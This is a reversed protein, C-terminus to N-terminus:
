IKLRAPDRRNDWIRIIEVLSASANVRYILLWHRHVLKQLGPRKRMPAGRNPLRDLTFIAEVIELGIREAAGPRKAALFGVLAALDAEAEQTLTVRWGDM